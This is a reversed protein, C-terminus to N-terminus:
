PRTFISQSRRNISKEKFELKSSGHMALKLNSKKKQLKEPNAFDQM